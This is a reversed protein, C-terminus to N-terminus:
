YMAFVAALPTTGSTATTVVYYFLFNGQVVPCADIATTTASLTLTCLLVGSAADNNWDGYIQQTQVCTGTCTVTGLFTKAGIPLATATSTANSATSPVNGTGVLQTMRVVDGSQVTKWATTNATNGPQVTWTGSQTVTSSGSSSGSAATMTGDAYATASYLLLLAFFAWRKISQM